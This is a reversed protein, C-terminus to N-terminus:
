DQEEETLLTKQTNDEKRSSFSNSSVKWPNSCKQRTLFMRVLVRADLNQVVSNVPDYIAYVDHLFVVCHWASQLHYRTFVCVVEAVSWTCAGRRISWSGNSLSASLYHGVIHALLSGSRVSSGELSRVVYTGMWTYVGTGKSCLKSWVPSNMNVIQIYDMGHVNKCVTYGCIFANLLVFYLECYM